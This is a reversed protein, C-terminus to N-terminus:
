PTAGTEPVRRVLRGLTECLKRSFETFGPLRLVLTQEQREHTPMAAAAFQYVGRCSALQRLPRHSKDTRTARDEAM